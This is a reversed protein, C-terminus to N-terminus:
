TRLQEIFKNELFKIHAKLSSLELELIHFRERIDKLRDNSITVKSTKISLFERLQDYESKFTYNNRYMYKAEKVGYTVTSHDLGAISQGIFSLELKPYLERFVMFAMYRRRVIPKSRSKLTIDIDYHLKTYDIIQQAIINYEM